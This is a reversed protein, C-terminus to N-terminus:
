SADCGMAVTSQKATLSVQGGTCMFTSAFPITCPFHCTMEVDLPVSGPDSGGRASPTTKVTCPNDASSAMQLLPQIRSAIAQQPSEGQKQCYTKSAIDAAIATAHDVVDRQVCNRGLQVNMLFVGFVILWTPSFALLETIANGADDHLLRAAFSQDRLAVRGAELRIRRM